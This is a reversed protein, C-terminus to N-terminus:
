WAPFVVAFFPTLMDYSHVATLKSCGCKGVSRFFVFAYSACQKAFLAHDKEAYASHDFNNWIFDCQQDISNLDIASLIFNLILACISWYFFIRIYNANQQFMGVIGLCTICMGIFLIWTFLLGTM